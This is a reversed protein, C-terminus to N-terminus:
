VDRQGRMMPGAIADIALMWDIQAAPVHDWEARFRGTAKWVQYDRWEDPLDSM